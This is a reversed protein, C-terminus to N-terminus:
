RRKPALGLLEPNKARIELFQAHTLKRVDIKGGTAPTPPAAPTPKFLNAHESRRKLNAVAEAPTDAIEQGTEDNTVVRVVYQGGAEEYSKGALLSWRLCAVGRLLDVRGDQYLRRKIDTFDVFIM